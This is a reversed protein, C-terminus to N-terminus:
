QEDASPGYLGPVPVGLERLYVTLQARHHIIHSIGMRRMAAARPASLVVRDGFRMTWSEVLAADDLAAFAARLTEVNRDFTRLIEDRSALQSPGPRSTALDLEADRAVSIALGPLQALHTALRGLTMSKDHPRWTLHEDPVRELARRTSALESDLDGLALQKLSPTSLPM